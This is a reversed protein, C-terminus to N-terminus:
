GQSGGSERTYFIVSKVSKHTYAQLEISTTMQHETQLLNLYKGSTAHTHSDQNRAYKSDDKRCLSHGYWAVVSSLSTRPTTHPSM